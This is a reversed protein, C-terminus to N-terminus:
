FISFGFIPLTNHKKWYSYGPGQPIKRQYEFCQRIISWPLRLHTYCQWWLFTYYNQCNWIVNTHVKHTTWCASVTLCLPCECNNSECEHCRAHLGCLDPVNDIQNWWCYWVHGKSGHGWSGRLYHHLILTLLAHM